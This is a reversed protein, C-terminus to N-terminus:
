RGGRRRAPVQGGAAVWEDLASWRGIIVGRLTKIAGAAIANRIWDAALRETIGYRSAVLAKPLRVPADQQPNPEAQMTHDRHM